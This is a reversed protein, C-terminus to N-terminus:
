PTWPVSVDAFAQDVQGTTTVTGADIAAKVESSRAFCASVHSRVADGIAILTPADLTRSVGDAAEFQEVHAPDEVATQRAGFILLKSRDDTLIPMAGDPTALAIGGTEARWRAAATYARLDDATPPAPTRSAEFAAVEEATMEVETGNVLKKM